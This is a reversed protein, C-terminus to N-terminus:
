YKVRLFCNTSPTFSAYNFVIKPEYSIFPVITFIETNEITTLSNLTGDHKHKKHCCIIGSDIFFDLKLYLYCTLKLAIIKM